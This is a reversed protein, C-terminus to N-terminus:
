SPSDNVLGYFYTRMAREDVIEYELAFDKLYTIQLVAMGHVFAWMSYTIEIVKNHDKAAILGQDAAAKVAFYPISFADNPDVNDESPLQTPGELTNFLLMFLEPEERAFQVYALGVEELREIPHDAGQTRSLYELLRENAQMCVAEVIADKNSFYEYLGAPSYDIRDAIKRLSLKEIGDQRIMTAAAQLIADRTRQQRRERPTEDSM